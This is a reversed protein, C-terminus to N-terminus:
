WNAAFDFGYGFGGKKIALAYEAFKEWTWSEGYPQTWNGLPPPYKLNLKDFVTRNFYIIRYDSIM